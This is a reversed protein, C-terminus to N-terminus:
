CRMERVFSFKGMLTLIIRELSIAKGGQARKIGNMPLHSKFYCAMQVYIREPSSFVSVLGIVQCNALFHDELHSIVLM